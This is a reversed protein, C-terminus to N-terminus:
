RPLTGLGLRNAAYGIEINQFLTDTVVLATLNKAGLNVYSSSVALPGFVHEEDGANVLYAMPTIGGGGVGEITHVPLPAPESSAATEGGTDVGLLQASAVPTLPAIRTGRDGHFPHCSFDEHCLRRKPTEALFVPCTGTLRSLTLPNPQELASREDDILDQWTTTNCIEDIAHDAGSGSPVGNGSCKRDRGGAMWGVQGTHSPYASM